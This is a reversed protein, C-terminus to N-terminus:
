QTPPRISRSITFQESHSALRVSLSHLMRRITVSFSYLHITLGIISRINISWFDLLINGTYNLEFSKCLHRWYITEILIFISRLRFTPFSPALFPSPSNDWWDNFVYNVKALLNRMRFLPIRIRPYKKASSLTAYMNIATRGVENINEHSNTSIRRLNDM